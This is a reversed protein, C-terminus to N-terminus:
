AGAEHVYEDMEEDAQVDDADGCEEAAEERLHLRHAAALGAEDRRHQVTRQRHQDGARDQDAEVLGVVM